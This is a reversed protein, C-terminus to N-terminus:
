TQSASNTTLIASREAGFRPSVIGSFDRRNARDNAVFIARVVSAGRSCAPTSGEGERKRCLCYSSFVVELRIPRAESTHAGVLDLSETQWSIARIAWINRAVRSNAPPACQMRYEGEGNYNRHERKDAYKDFNGEDGSIREPGRQLM